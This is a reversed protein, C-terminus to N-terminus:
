NNFTGAAVTVLNDPDIYKKIASNVSELSLKNIKECYKDLYQLERNKEANTLVRDVLGGTTDLGVKYSGSITGKKVSLEKNLVGKSYWKQIESITSAKGKEIIDPSFTGWTTWYGDTNYGTGNLSSGIGYTLGQEDRVTQMLRASFNGGLIYVGMMLAYYDKHEQNIGIPQGIYLDASTKDAISIHENSKKVKNASLGKGQKENLNQNKWGSFNNVVLQNFLQNDLDGAVVFNMSGLGFSNQHYLKLDEVTVSNVLEVSRSIQMEHNAHFKPYLKEIFNIKAQKKTDEKLRELNGLIRKKVILLEENDFKPKKLQEALLNIVKELDEKLCHATFGIHNKSNYFNIEAGASELVDSIQYKDKDITGKDLMSVALSSIKLNEKPSYLSGGLFSGSLTVVDKIKTPIVHTKLGPISENLIVNERFNM